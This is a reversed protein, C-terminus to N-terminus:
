QPIPAQCFGDVCKSTPNCCDGNMTCANGDQSCGGPEPPMGCVYQGQDNKVCQGNCCDVGSTCGEGIEKCPDLAYYANESKGCNEQGRIYFPPHSPDAASPPDDIATIWLQQRNAGVLTNGYDRRSIFVLWFYGGARLPAFVPNFSQNDSSATALKKLNQGDPGVLWLDGNAVSRSGSTPRGFSIWESGPSFSPYAPRGQGGAKPAIIAENTLSGDAAIDAVKLNGENSDFIWFSNSVGCIAAIKKGDPSWAPEGCQPGMVGQNLVQGTMADLINLQKGQGDNSYLIKTGDNNFASFTGRVNHGQNILGPVAPDQTLDITVMPFPSGQDYTAMMTKGDRSVTHCGWCIGPNFFEDVNPSDAKIRLIRGNGVGCQDPLEWYYISGKLKGQAIHWTNTVADFAKGGSYRTLKVTVPDSQSGAGSGGLNAWDSEAILHRAPVSATFYETYEYYKEKLHLKYVDGASVGKWQVEPALVALPFVTKDYPYVIQLSPDPGGTPNDLETKQDPPVNGAGVTKSVSVTVNTSGEAGSYKAILKGSGGVNGTPTFTSAPAAVDGIDPREYIWVVQGTVDQGNLTATFAQTPITADVVQLTVDKPQIDIGGVVGGGGGNGGSGCNFLCGGAGGQGTATTSDSSEGGNGSSSGSAGPDASCGAYVLFAWLLALVVSLIAFSKRM